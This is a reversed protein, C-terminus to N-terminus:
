FSMMVDEEEDMDIDNYFDFLEKFEKFVQDQLYFKNCTDPVLYQAHFQKDSEEDGNSESSGDYDSNSSESFISPRIKFIDFVYSDDDSSIPLCDDFEESVPYLLQDNSDDYTLSYEYSNDYYHGSKELEDSSSTFFPSHEYDYIEYPTQYLKTKSFNEFSLDQDYLEDDSLDYFNYHTYTM